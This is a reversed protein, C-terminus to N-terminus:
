QGRPHILILIDVPCLARFRRGEQAARDTDERERLLHSASILGTWFNIIQLDIDGM